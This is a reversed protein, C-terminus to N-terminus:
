FVLNFVSNVSWIITDSSKRTIINNNDIIVRIVYCRCLDGSRKLGWFGLYFFAGHAVRVDDPNYLGGMGGCKRKNKTVCSVWRVVGVACMMGRAYWGVRVDDWTCMMGCACWGVRVDHGACSMMLHPTGDRHKQKMMRSISVMMVVSDLTHECCGREAGKKPVYDISEKDRGPQILDNHDECGSFGWDYWGSMMWVVKIGDFCEEEASKLTHWTLTFPKLVCPIDADLAVRSVVQWYLRIM